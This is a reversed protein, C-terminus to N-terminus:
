RRTPLLRERRSGRCRSKLYRSRRRRSSRDGSRPFQLYHRHPDQREQTEVPSETLAAAAEPKQLQQVAVSVEPIEMLASVLEQAGDIESHILTIQANLLQAKSRRINRVFDSHYIDRLSVWLVNLSELNLRLSVEKRVGTISINFSGPFRENEYVGVYFTGNDSAMADSM